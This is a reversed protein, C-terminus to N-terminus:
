VAAGFHRWRFVAMGTPAVAVPGVVRPALLSCDPAGPLLDTSSIQVHTIRYRNMRSPRPRHCGHTAWTCLCAIAHPGAQSYAFRSLPRLLMGIDFPYVTQREIETKGDASVVIESEALSKDEVVPPLRNQTSILM